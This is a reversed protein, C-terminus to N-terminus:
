QGLRALQGSLWSSQSQLDNLTTELNTYQKWLRAEKSELRQQLSVARDAYDKITSVLSSEEQFFIGIGTYTKLGEYIQYFAGEDAMMYEYSVKVEEGMAPANGFKITGEDHDVYYTNGTLEEETEVQDYVTSGDGVVVSVNQKINDNGLSFVTRYGNGSGIVKELEEFTEGEWYQFTAEIDGAPPPSFFEIYGTDRDISFENAASPNTAPKYETDNIRISIDEGINKYGLYFKQKAGDASAVVQNKIQNTSGNARLMAEAVDPMDQMAQNFKDKDFEILGMKMEDTVAGRAGAASIGIDELTYGAFSTALFSKMQDHVNRITNDGRLLGQMELAKLAEEDTASSKKEDSAEEENIVDYLYTMVENYKDVFDQVKESIDETDSEVTINVTGAVAEKLNFEVGNISFKNSSRTTSIGNFEFTANSGLTQPVDKIKMAELFNSSKDELVIEANGEVKSKLTFKESYEDYFATVGAESSNIRDVLKQISDASTNLNFDVGNISFIGSTISVDTNLDEINADKDIFDLAAVEFFGKQTIDVEDFLAISKGTDATISFMETTANYSFDAIEAEVNDEVSQMFADVSSYHSLTFGVGNIVVGGEPVSSFGANEFSKTTDIGSVASSSSIISSTNLQGTSSVVTSSALTINRFTYTGNIAELGATASVADENTSTTKKSRFSSELTMDFVASQFDYVKTNIQSIYERKYEAARKKEIVRYLPQKEIDMLGEVISNVDLGSALGTIQMSGAM